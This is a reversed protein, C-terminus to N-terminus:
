KGVAQKDAALAVPAPALVSPAVAGPSMAGRLERESIIYILAFLTSCVREYANVAIGIGLMVLLVEYGAAVYPIYITAERGGMVRYLYGCYLLGAELGTVMIATAIARGTNWLTMQTSLLEVKEVGSTLLVYSLLFSQMRTYALRFQWTERLFVSYEGRTQKNWLKLGKLIALFKSKYSKSSPINLLLSWDEQVYAKNLDAVRQFWHRHQRAQRVFVRMEVM